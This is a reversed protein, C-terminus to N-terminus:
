LSPSQPTRRPSRPRDAMKRPGLPVRPLRRTSSTRSSGRSRVSIKGRGAFEPHLYESLVSRSNATSVPRSGDADPFPTSVQSENPSTTEIGRVFDGERLKASPFTRSSTSYSTIISLAKDRLGPPFDPPSPFASPSPTTSVSSRAQSTIRSCREDPSSCSASSNFSGLTPSHYSPSPESVSLPQPAGKFGASLRLAKHPSPQLLVLRPSDYSGAGADREEYSRSQDGVSTSNYDGLFSLTHTPIKLPSPADPCSHSMESQISPEPTGPQVIKVAEAQAVSKLKATASERRVGARRSSSPRTKHFLHPQRDPVSSSLSPLDDMLYRELSPTTPAMINTVRGRSRSPQFPVSRGSTPLSRIGEFIPPNWLTPVPTPISDPYRHEAFSPPTIILTDEPLDSRRDLTGGSHITKGEPPMPLNKSLPHPHLIGPAGLTSACNNPIVSPTMSGQNSVVPNSRAKEPSRLRSTLLASPPM